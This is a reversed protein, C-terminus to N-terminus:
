PHRHRSRPRYTSALGVAAGSGPSFDLLHSPGLNTWAYWYLRDLGTKAATRNVERVQWDATRDWRSRGQVLNVETLWLSECRLGAASTARRVATSVQILEHPETGAPPYWHFAIADIPTQREALARWLRQAVSGVHPGMMMPGPAIVAAAPDVERIVRAAVDVLEALRAPDGRWFWGLNPENGIEYATIRGRYRTVVTRVYDVWDANDRPPAASGPGLWPADDASLSDAAWGPTGWLVLTIDTVGHNMAKDVNADLMEFAWQDQAPEVNLWATRTDWLRVSTMPIDPWEGPFDNLQGTREIRPGGVAWPVHLGVTFGSRRVVDPTADRAFAPPALIVSCGVMVIAIVGRVRCM